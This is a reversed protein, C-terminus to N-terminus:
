NALHIGAREIADALARAVLVGVLHDRFDASARFDAKAKVARRASQACETILDLTVERGETGL